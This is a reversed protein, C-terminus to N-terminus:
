VAGNKDNFLILPKLPLSRHTIVDFKDIKTSQNISVSKLRNVVGLNINTLESILKRTKAYKRDDLLSTDIVSELNQLRASM